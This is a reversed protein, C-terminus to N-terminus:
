RQTVSRQQKHLGQEQRIIDALIAAATDMDNLRAKSFALRLYQCPSRSDLTCAQGPILMLGREFATHFVMNYVDEIGNVKIWFFMGARPPTWTALEAIHKQLAAQLVDRRTKYMECVSRLHKALGQRGWQVMLQHLIAQSLTSSHLLSAQMHLELRDLLVKPATVWGARLGSSLVKSLSDLRLVRGEVDLSLFSVVQQDTYNMFMYPDDEMIFFNYKCAIDYIRQRRENSIIAGSPNGGTPVLYMLKPLKLGKAVRDQLLTELAEPITGEEDEPIGLIEPNYPKIVIDIGNYTPMQVLVPDGTELFLDVCKYIGDQSGCTVLIDRSDSHPPKHLENQFKRLECLLSPLGQSPIYQLATALAKEEMVLNDGNKMDLTLKKFPFADDNPMGEALSIFEKGVKYALNTIQRTLAPERRMSRTSLMSIYDAEALMRKNDFVVNDNNHCRFIDEVNSLHRILVVEKRNLCRKFVHTSNKINVIMRLLTRTRKGRQKSPFHYDVYM